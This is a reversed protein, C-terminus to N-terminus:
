DIHVSTLIKGNMEPTLTFFYSQKKESDRGYDTYIDLLLYQPESTVVSNADELYFHWDGKEATVFNLQKSLIGDKLFDTMDIENEESHSWFLLSRDPKVLNLKFRADYSSWNLEIRLDMSPAILLYKELGRTNWSNDRNALMKKFQIIANRRIPLYKLQNKGVLEKFKYIAENANGARGNFIAVDLDNQLETPSIEQIREYVDKAEQYAGISAYALALGRLKTTNGPFRERINSLIRNSLAVEGDQKFYNASEIYFDLKDGYVKRGKLYHNYNPKMDDRFVVHRYSDTKWTRDVELPGKYKKLEPIKNTSSVQSEPLKADALITTFLIVGRSGESGFRNTAALGKLVTVDKITNPDIFGYDAEYGPRTRPLPVGDLVILAYKSITAEYNETSITRYDRIRARELRGDELIVGRLKGAVFEGIDTQGMDREQKVYTEVTYGVAERRKEGYLTIVPTEESEKEIITNIVVTDLAQTEEELFVNITTKDSVEVNSTKFGVHSYQLIDGSYVELEYNGNGDSTTGNTSGEVQIYANPLPGYINRVTGKILKDIAIDAKEDTIPGDLYANYKISDLSHEPGVRDLNIFYGGTYYSINHLNARSYHSSSNISYVPSLLTYRASEPIQFGDSFLLIRDPKEGTSVTPFVGYGDYNVEKFYEILGTEDGKSIKFHKKEIVIDSYIIVEVSAISVEDFYAKLFNYEKEFNRNQSSFSADWYILLKQEKAINQGQVELHSLSIICVLFSLTTLRIKMVFLKLTTM